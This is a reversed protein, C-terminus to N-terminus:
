WLAAEFDIEAWEASRLEGPRVALLPLLQLALKIAPTRTAYDDIACLLEGFAAPKVIAARHKVKPTVLAGRLDRTPDSEARGTAVAFRFVQGVFGRLINATAYNEKRECQQLVALIERPTIEALPRSHLPAALRILRDARKLTAPAASEKRKKEVVEAAVVGWTGTAQAAQAAKQARKEQAPDKGERLLRLADDRRQRAESLSVLPYPGFSLAPKPKGAFTYIFRWSKAGNPEVWLWLGAGDPERTLRPIKQLQEPTPNKLPRGRSGLAERVEPKANRVQADTLRNIAAMIPLEKVWLHLRGNPRDIGM